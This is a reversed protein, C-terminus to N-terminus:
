KATTQDAANAPTAPKRYAVAQGDQLAFRGETILMMGDAMEIPAPRGEQADAIPLFRAKNGELVFIGLRGGRTVLLDAPVHPTSTQWQIQGTAGPKPTDKIFALRAEQTRSAGSMAPSVRKLKLPSVGDLTHFVIGDAKALSEADKAQVQASVELSQVDWLTVLPTGPSALEGVSGPVSEVIAAFPAVIVCKGV